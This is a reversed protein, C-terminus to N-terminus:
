VPAAATNVRDRFDASCLGAIDVILVSRAGHTFCSLTVPKLLSADCDRPFECLQADDVQIRAPAGDVEIAVQRLPANPAEQYHLLCYYADDGRAAVVGDHLAAVDMVPVIDDHWLLVRSCHAPTGAVAHSQAPPLLEAMEHDGVAITLSGGCELLWADATSM